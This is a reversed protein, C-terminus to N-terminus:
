NICMTIVCLGFKGWCDKEFHLMEDALNGTKRRVWVRLTWACLAALFVPSRCWPWNWWCVCLQQSGLLPSWHHLGCRYGSTKGLAVWHSQYADRHCRCHHKAFFLPPCRLKCHLLQRSKNITYHKFILALFSFIAPKPNVQKVGCRESLQTM